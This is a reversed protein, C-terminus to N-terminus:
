VIVWQDWREGAYEDDVGHVFCSGIIQATNTLHDVKRLLIPMYGGEVHVFVDGEASLPPVLGILGQSTVCLRKGLVNKDIRTHLYSFLKEDEEESIPFGLAEEATQSEGSPYEEFLHHSDAFRRADRSRAGGIIGKEAFPDPLELMEDGLVTEWLSQDVREQFAHLHMCHRRVFARSNVLWRNIPNEYEQALIEIIYYSFASTPKCSSEAMLLSISDFQVAKLSLQRAEKNIVPIAHPRLSYGMDKPLRIGWYDDHSFDPVWSPLNSKVPSAPQARESQFGRGAMVLAFFWGQTQLFISAVELYVDEVSDTYNPRYPFAGTDAAIGYLAFIRDRPDSCKFSRTLWLLSALPLTPNPQTAARITQVAKIEHCHKPKGLLGATDSENSDLQQRAHQRNKFWLHRFQLQKRFDSGVEESAKVIANWDLCTGNFLIHVKEAVAVEQIVWGREFWSHKLCNRLTDFAVEVDEVNLISTVHPNVERTIAKRLDRAQKASTPPGLWVLVRTAQRYIATMLPLQDSKEDDDNQNICISDIWYIRPRFFSRNRYLFNQVNRTVLVHRGDVEM